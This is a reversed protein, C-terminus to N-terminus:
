RLEVHKTSFSYHAVSCVFLFDRTETVMTGIFVENDRKFGVARRFPQLYNHVYILM